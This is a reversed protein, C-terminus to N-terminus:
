TRPRAKLSPPDAIKPCSAPSTTAPAPQTLTSNSLTAPCTFVINIQVKLEKVVNVLLSNNCNLVDM